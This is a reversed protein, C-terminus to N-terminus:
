KGPNLYMWGYLRREAYGSDPILKVKLLGTPADGATYTDAVWSDQTTEVDDM